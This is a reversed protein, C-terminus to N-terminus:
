DLYGVQKEYEESVKELSQIRLEELQAQAETLSVGLSQLETITAVYEEEFQAATINGVALENQLETLHKMQAESDSLYTNYDALYSDAL